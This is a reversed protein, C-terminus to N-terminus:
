KRKTARAAAEVRMANEPGLSWPPMPNGTELSDPNDGESLYGVKGIGGVAKYQSAVYGPLLHCLDSRRPYRAYYNSWAADYRPPFTASAADYVLLPTARAGHPFHDGTAISALRSSREQPYSLPAQLYRVGDITADWGFHM